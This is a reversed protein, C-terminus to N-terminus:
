TEYEPSPVNLAGLTRSVWYVREQLAVTFFGYRPLFMVLLTALTWFYFWAIEYSTYRRSVFLSRFQRVM